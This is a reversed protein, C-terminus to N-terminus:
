GEKSNWMHIHWQNTMQKGEGDSIKFLTISSSLLRLRLWSLDQVADPDGELPHINRAYHRIKARWDGLISSSPIQM